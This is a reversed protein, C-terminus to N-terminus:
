LGEGSYDSGKGVGFYDDCMAESAGLGLAFTRQQSIKESWSLSKNSYISLFEEFKGIKGLYEM